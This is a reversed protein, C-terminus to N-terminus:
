VYVYLSHTYTTLLYLYSFDHSIWIFSCIIKKWISIFYLSLQTEFNPIIGFTWDLSVFFMYRDVSLIAWFHFENITLRFRNKHQCESDGLDMDLESPINIYNDETFVDDALNWKCSLQKNKKGKLGFNLIYLVLNHCNTTPPTRSRKLLIVLNLGDSMFIPNEHYTQWTQFSLGLELLCKEPKDM